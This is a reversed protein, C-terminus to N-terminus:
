LDQIGCLINQKRYYRKSVNKTEGKKNNKTSTKTHQNKTMYKKNKSSLIILLVQKICM